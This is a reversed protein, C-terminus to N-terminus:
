VVQDQITIALNITGGDLSFKVANSLLNRIVQLTKLSDLPIPPLNEPVDLHLQLHRESIYSAFEESARIILNDLHTPEFTFTMKGAELKALDLLDNLLALLTRGSQDIQTFYNLLKDPSATGMRKMGFGACSLIAHLPTRLEHSMNALFQSKARNAAEAAEKAARLEEEARKKRLYSRVRTMLIADNVPKTMFDDVGCDIAQIYSKAEGLGTLVIVPISQWQPSSKIRRSVEFGDLRPMILDLLIIDPPDLTLTHLAEPGNLAKILRYGAPALIAPLIELNTPEDDVLLITADPRDLAFTGSEPVSERESPYHSVLSNPTTSTAALFDSQHLMATLANRVAPYEDDIQDLLQQMYPTMTDSTTAELEGCLQALRRAGVNASSSKLSHAVQRIVAVHHNPAATYFQTILHSASELYTTLMREVRIEGDPLAKITLLIDTDLLPASPAFTDLSAQRPNRLFNAEVSQTPLWRSLVTYLEEQIYPKSLYDDMGAALCEARDQATAHATLAIIPTSPRNMSHEHERLVKTTEFGDMEPMQCDMLVLDYATQRFAEIAEHGNTAINVRCGLSKLMGIAVLQNIENDEALLVLGQLGHLRDSLEASPLRPLPFRM